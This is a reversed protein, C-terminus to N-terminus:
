GSAAAPEKPQQRRLAEQRSARRVQSLTIMGLPRRPPGEDVVTVQELEMRDMRQLVEDLREHALVSHEVPDMVDSVVLWEWMRQNTLVHKLVSMSVMGALGGDDGVVPIALYDRSGFLEFVRRLADGEKVSVLNRDMADACTWSAIVDEETVNRGIEGALACGLKVLPPGIIDVVLTSATAIFIITQGLQLGGAAAQVHSLRHVAMVSLGVAVAGQTWLALGAYRKVQESAHSVIGGGYAGAMKGVGRVVIYIALLGILWLPVATIQLRAGVLVFFIVMIPLAVERLNAFMSECKDGSFNRVLFGSFMAVLIVDAGVAQAAVVLVLAVGLASAVAVHSERVRFAVLMLVGAFAAGLVGAMLLDFLAGGVSSLMSGGGSHTLASAVSTGLAYLILALADDLAVIATLTSTLPGATRYEWLVTITCPPDSASGIAGLIIGAVVGLVVSHFVLAVLVGTGIVILVFAALGEALMITVFQKGYKRFEELKLEGGVLLGIVALAFFTVPELKVSADESILHLGSAGIILGVAIYGVIQPVSIRKILWGGCLGGFLGVGLMLLVNHSYQALM